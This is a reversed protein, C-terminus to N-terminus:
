CSSTAVSWVVADAGVNFSTCLSSYCLFLAIPCIQNFLTPPPQTLPNWRSCHTARGSPSAKHCLHPPLPPQLLFPAQRFCPWALGLLSSFPACQVDVRSLLVEAQVRSTRPNVHWGQGGGCSTVLRNSCFLNGRQGPVNKFWTIKFWTITVFCTVDKDKVRLGLLDTYSYKMHVTGKVFLTPPRHVSCARFHFTSSDWVIM